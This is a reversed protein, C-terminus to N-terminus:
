FVADLEQATTDPPMPAPPTRQAYQVRRMPPIDAPDVRQAQPASQQATQGKRIVAFSQARIDLYGNRNKDLKGTVLVLDGPAVQAQLVESQEHFFAFEYVDATKAGQHFAEVEVSLRAYQMGSNSTTAEVKSCTGCIQFQNLAAM